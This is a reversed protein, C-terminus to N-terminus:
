GTTWWFKHPIPVFSPLDVFSHADVVAIQRKGLPYVIPSCTLIKIEHFAQRMM